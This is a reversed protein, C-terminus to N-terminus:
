REGGPAAAPVLRGDELTLVPCYLGREERRWWAGTTRRTAADTFHYDYVVARVYRPPGDSFPNGDLMALVPKSGELLRKCFMLFWPERRFDSLAAFWMQWDLRPMHPTVFQPRRKLDGPKFRFTYDRWTVGDTSGSMIIEPRSTTMVAFLGYGSVIRMTSAYRYLPTIPGLGVRFGLAGAFPVLSVLVLLAAVPRLIWRPWRAPAPEVREVGARRRWRWPWVGDDLLLVCLAISLVNFVGYNGTLLILTQLAILAAAGAFRIRRPAFVLFPALGEVVFLLITSAAQFTAPWHHAYWATWPPLPQTEYHYTLATLNRWTPDGSTLKVAASSLMLRFLLWRLLWLAPRPPADAGPRSWWRWPAFFLVIFGTELLLSDWQFWLFDQGVTTLSLYCVWAGGAAVAPAIGLVLLLSSVTGITSLVHLFGDSANFWCLTPVYVYRMWGVRSGVDALFERAPLIGDRGALGIIQTWLSVFAALYVFGLLRLFLWSTLAMGPPAVHPGWVGRTIRTFAPRHDAVLRYCAESIPAFGPLSRYLELPWASGPAYALSRFVAEAAEYRTGDPEILQVAHQFRSRPIDPFQSAVEQYTAYEVLDGTIRRWRAIWGRCFECDRDWVLLPKSRSPVDAGHPL